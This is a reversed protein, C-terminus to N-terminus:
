ARFRDRISVITAYAKQAAELVGAADSPRHTCLDDLFVVAQAQADVYTQPIRPGAFLRVFAFAADATKYSACVKDLTANAKAVAVDTMQIAEAVGAALNRDLTPGQACGALVAGIGFFLPLSKM